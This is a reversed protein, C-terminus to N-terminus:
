ASRKEGYVRTLIPLSHLPRSAAEAARSIDPSISQVGEPLPVSSVEIASFGCFRMMELLRGESLLVSPVYVARDNKDIFRAQSRQPDESGRLAQGWAQAPTTLFAIGGPVLLRFAENLFALGMFPDILFGVVGVFQGDLLPVDTANAWIKLLSPERDPLALMRESADLQIIRNGPLGLFEGCRGRGCGVELILGVPPIKPANDAITAATAADFNRCTKHRSEYYEDALFDYPSEIV